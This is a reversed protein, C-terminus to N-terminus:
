GLKNIGELKQSRGERVEKEGRIWENKKDPKKHTSKDIEKEQEWEM